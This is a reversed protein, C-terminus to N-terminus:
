TKSAFFTHIMHKLKTDLKKELPGYCTQIRGHCMCGDDIGKTGDVRVKKITALFLLFM